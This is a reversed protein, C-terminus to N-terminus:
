HCLSYAFLGEMLPTKLTYPMSNGTCRIATQPKRYDRRDAPIGKRNYASGSDWHDTARQQLLIYRLPLLAVHGPGAAPNKNQVDSIHRENFHHENTPKVSTFTQEQREDILPSINM